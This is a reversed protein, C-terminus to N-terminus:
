GEARRAADKRDRAAGDEMRERQYRFPCHHNQCVQIPQLMANCNLVRCPDPDPIMNEEPTM